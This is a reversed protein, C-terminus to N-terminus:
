KSACLVGLQLPSAKGGEGGCPPAAIHLGGSPPFPKALSAACFRPGNRRSERGAARAVAAKSPPFPFSRGGGTGGLPPLASYCLVSPKEHTGNYLVLRKTYNRPGRRPHPYGCGRCGAILRQPGPRRGPMTASATIGNDAQRGASRPCLAAESVFCLNQIIARM